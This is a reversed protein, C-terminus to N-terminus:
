DAPSDISNSSASDWSPRACTPRGRHKGKQNGGGKGGGGGGTLSPEAVTQAAGVVRAVVTGDVGKQRLRNQLVEEADLSRKKAAILPGWSITPVVAGGIIDEDSSSETDEYNYRRCLLCLGIGFDQCEGESLVEKCNWCCFLISSGAM